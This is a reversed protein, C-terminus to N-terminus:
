KLFAPATHAYLYSQWEAYCGTKIVIGNASCDPKLYGEADSFASGIDVYFLKNEKSLQSIYSNYQKVGAMTYTGAADIERGVPLVSMLYIRAKPQAARIESILAGYYDYFASKSNFGLENLGFQLYINTYAKQAMIETLTLEGSGTFKQGMGGAVSASDSYYVEARPVANTYLRMGGINSEGIFVSNDFYDDGVPKGAPVAAGFDYVSQPTLITTTSDAPKPGSETYKKQSGGCSVAAVIIIIIIGALVGIAILRNRAIQQKTYKPM